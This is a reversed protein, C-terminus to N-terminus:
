LLRGNISFANPHIFCVAPIFFVFSRPSQFTPHCNTIVAAANLRQRIGFSVHAGVARCGAVV